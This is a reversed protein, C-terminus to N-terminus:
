AHQVLVDLPQGIRRVTFMVVLMGIVLALGIISLLWRSRSDMEAALGIKATAVRDAKLRGLRDISNLMDDVPARAQAAAKRADDMRGLDALRHAVAYDVEMASLKNDISAVTAVEAATQGPRDNMERQVAHAAWGFKRFAEQAATDRTELYHAGSEITKTANASLASALRAEAQVEALSENITVAMQTFSRRAVAGAVVLLAVLIGFGIWLRGRITNLGVHDVTIM